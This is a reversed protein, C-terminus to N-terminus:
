IDEEYSMCADEEEYSMCADEEEYAMGEPLCQQRSPLHLSTFGNGYRVTCFTISMEEDLIPEHRRLNKKKKENELFFSWSIIDEDVIPEQRRLNDKKRNRKKKM